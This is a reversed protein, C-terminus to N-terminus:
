SVGQTKNGASGTPALHELIMAKIGLAGTNGVAKSMAQMGFDDYNGLTPDAAKDDPDSFTEKMSKWLTELLISEFEGAAKGLKRLQPSNTNASSPHSAASPVVSGQGSISHPGGVIM